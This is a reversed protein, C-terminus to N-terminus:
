YSTGMENVVMRLKGNSDAPIESVWCYKLQFRGAIIEDLKNSLREEVEEISDNSMADKVLQLTVDFYSKQIFRAQIISHEMSIIKWLVIWGIKSGDACKIEDNERGILDVIKSGHANRVVTARDRIDYNILPFTDKFLTTFVIRGSGDTVNDDDDYINVAVVDDMIEYENSGIPMIAITGAEAAGYAPLLSDGFTNAMIRRSTDDINEGSISYFKPRHVMLDHKQAYIATRVFNSKYMRVFDPKVKNFREIIDKEPADENVFERRLVGLRQILTKYGVTESTNDIETITIGLFPNYGCIMWSRLVNVIEIAYEKPTTIITTPRGTSGSTSSLMCYKNCEKEKESRMWEKFETKTLIPLKSLDEISKIDEPKIGVKDFRERYFPIAYANRMCKRLNRNRVKERYVDSGNHYRLMKLLAIFSIVNFLKRQVKYNM